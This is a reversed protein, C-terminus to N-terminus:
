YFLFVLYSDSLSIFKEDLQRFFFIYILLKRHIRKTDLLLTIKRGGRFRKIGDVRATAMYLAPSHRLERITKRAFRMSLGLFNHVIIWEIIKSFSRSVVELDDGFYYNTVFVNKYRMVGARYAQVCSLANCFLNLM